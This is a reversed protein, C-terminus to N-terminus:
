KFCIAECTAGRYQLVWPKTAGAAMSTGPDLIVKCLGPGVQADDPIDQVGTLFCLKANIFFEQPLTDISGTDSHTQSYVTFTDGIPLSKWEANGSTDKSALVKGVGPTGGGIRINNNVDLDSGVLLGGSFTGKGVSNMTLGENDNDGSIWHGNLNLTQLAVHNGLNDPQTGGTGGANDIACQWGSGTNKLIYNTPCTKLSLIPNSQTGSLILGDGAGVSVSSGTATGCVWASGNWQLVQNLGCNSPPQFGGGGGGSNTDTNLIVLTEETTGDGDVDRMSRVFGIPGGSDLMLNGKSNTPSMSTLQGTGFNALEKFIIKKYGGLDAAKTCNNGDKDCYDTAGVKGEVDLLLNPSPTENAAGGVVMGTLARFLGLISLGGDKIQPTASSDIPPNCGPYGDPCLPAQGSGPPPNYAAHTPTISFILVSLLIFFSTVILKAM